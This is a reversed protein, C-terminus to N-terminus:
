GYTRGSSFDFPSTCSFTWGVRFDIRSGTTHWDESAANWRKIDEPNTWAAWVADIDAAVVTRVAIKM